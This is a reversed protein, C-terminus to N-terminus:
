TQVLSKVLTNHLHTASLSTAPSWTVLCITGTIDKNTAFRVYWVSTRSLFLHSGESTLPYFACLSQTPRRYITTPIVASWWARDTACTAWYKAVIWCAVTQCCWGMDRWQLLHKLDIQVDVCFIVVSIFKFFNTQKTSLPLQFWIVTRSAIHVCHSSDAM